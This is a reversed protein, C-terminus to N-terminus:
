FFKLRDVLDSIYSGLPKLSPYSKDLWMGPTKGDFMQFFAGELQQSMLLLGKIAKKIDGLTSLVVEILKNFRTLEQLLVTNMSETYQTPYKQQVKPLKWPEPMRRLIDASVAGVTQEPSSSGGSSSQAMTLLLNDMM